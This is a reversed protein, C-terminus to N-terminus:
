NADMIRKFTDYTRNYRDIIPKPNLKREETLFIKLNDVDINGINMNKDIDKDHGDFFIDRAEQYNFDNPYEIIKKEIMNEISGYTRTYLYAKTPGIKPVTPCFDCGCLICMDIFLKYNLKMCKMIEQVDVVTFTNETKGKRLIKLPKSSNRSVFYPITDTDEAYVYDVIGRDYLTVCFAEADNNAVIFPIGLLKLLYKCDNRPSKGVSMYSIKKEIKYIQNLVENMEETPEIIYKNNSKIDKIKDILEVFVSNLDRNKAKLQELNVNRKFIANKKKAETPSGDFVYLPVIGNELYKSVNNIFGFIHSNATNSSKFKHILNDSDIAIKSGKFESIDQQYIASPAYENILKNLGKIGM